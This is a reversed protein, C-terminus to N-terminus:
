VHRAAPLEIVFRAGPSNDEARISGGHDSVIKHVIALGLGTGTKKTSFHPLFLRDRDEPRIGPGNDAVTLRLVSAAPDFDVAIEISGAQRDAQRGTQNGTQNVAEVANDMLNILVRKMQERDMRFPPIGGSARVELAVDRFGHYLGSVEDVLAAPDTEALHLDPLKGFRSFENVLNRLSDVERTITGMSSEIVSGVDPSGERHKKLLREAALKIPTLPNKIEHAMRRAVEQWAYARQAKIVETLDDFVVLVGTIEGDADKLNSLFVRLTAPMGKILAKLERCLGGFERHRLNKLISVLDESEVNRLIERSTLGVLDRPEICLIACAANNIRIVQGARDLLIVGSNINNMIGELVLRRNDVEAYAQRLRQQSTEIEGVMSNFANTLACIEDEGVATIRTKFDGDSVRRTGEVLAQIPGTIRAGVRLAAWLAMFITLMTVLALFLFYGTKIPAKISEVTKYDEFATRVTRIDRAIGEPLRSEVIVVGKDLMPAAARVIDTNGDSIVDTDARGSFAGSILADADSVRGGAPIVRVVLGDDAYGKRDIGGQLAMDAAIDRVRRGEMEYVKSAIDVSSTIPAKVQMSFWREVVGTVIWSTLVFLVVGPATVLIVFIGVLRTKFMHGPAGTKHERWLGALTRGVLYVLSSLALVASNIFLFLAARVFLTKGGLGLYRIELWTAAAVLMVAAIIFGPLRILKM